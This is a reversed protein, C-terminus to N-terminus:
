ARYGNYLEVIANWTEPGVIGTQEIGYLRQVARVANRTANGFQGDVNIVPVSSNNQGIVRLYTQLQEVVKGDSGVSLVYGPYILSSYSRYEKPLNNLISQYVTQIRNWTDRGVIGDQSLGYYRQFALVANRTAPGFIGDVSIEPLADNFFAIFNLYYQITRVESGRSGEQLIRSFARQAESYTVGESYLESLGKVSSYIYKLKYWTEKGVIGDQTLNFIRQFARVARETAADYVGLDAPVTPIAPYNAAIRNLERQITRVDEGRDGRRIARGPYSPINARVPANKVLNVNGYYYRLIDYPIYGREALDVTGWQKLGKCNVGRGSCYQTFYPSITGDKVVYDNFLEDVLKSINSFIDRGQVYSQDYQTSNTIDFNYGQSRYHETYIRNLAFTVIAYINARLASDPWTPYIESSAVNKIYDPFSVTVNRANSQPTGLHVTITRPIFPENIM